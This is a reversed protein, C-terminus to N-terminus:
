EKPPKYLLLGAFVCALDARQDPGLKKQVWVRGKGLVDVAAVIGQGDVRYGAPTGDSLMAGEREYIAKLQFSDAHSKLTGGYGNGGTEAAMVVSATPASESGCACGLKATQKGIGTGGLSFGKEAVESTCEGHITTNGSKFDFSYGSEADSKFAGFAGFKSTHKAGRSVNVVQYPAIKFDENVLAGSAMSRGEVPLEDMGQNLEAPPAMRPQTCGAAGVASVFSLGVLRHRARKPTM